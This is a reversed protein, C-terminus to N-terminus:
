HTDRPSAIDSFRRRLNAKVPSNAMAQSDAWRLRFRSPANAVRPAKVALRMHVMDSISAPSVPQTLPPSSIARM